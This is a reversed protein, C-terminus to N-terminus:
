KFQLQKEFCMGLYYYSNAKPPGYIHDEHQLRITEEIPAIAQQTQGLKFEIKGKLFHAEANWREREVVTNIKELAIKLENLEFPREVYIVGAYKMMIETNETLM